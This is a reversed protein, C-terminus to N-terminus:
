LGEAISFPKNLKCLYCTVKMIYSIKDIPFFVALGACDNGESYQIM